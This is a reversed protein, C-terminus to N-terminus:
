LFPLHLDDNVHRTHRTVNKVEETSGQRQKAANRVVVMDDELKESDPM